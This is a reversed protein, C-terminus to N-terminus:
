SGTTPTPPLPGPRPGLTGTKDGVNLSWGHPPNSLFWAVSDVLSQIDGVTYRFTALRHRPKTPDSLNAMTAVGGADVEVGLAKYAGAPLPWPICGSAQLLDDFAKTLAPDPDAVAGATGWNYAYYWFLGEPVRRWTPADFRTFAPTGVPAVSVEYDGVLVEYADTKNRYRVVLPTPEGTNAPLNDIPVSLEAGGQVVHYPSPMYRVGAVTLTMGGPLLSASWDIYHYPAGYERETIGDLRLDRDSASVSETMELILMSDLPGLEDETGPRRGEDCGVLLSWAGLGVLLLPARMGASILM